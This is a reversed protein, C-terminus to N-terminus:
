LTPADRNALGQLGIALATEQLSLESLKWVNPVNLNYPPVSSTTSTAATAAAANSAEEAQPQSVSLHVAAHSMSPQYWFSAALAPQKISVTYQLYTTTGAMVITASHTASSLLDAAQSGGRQQTVMSCNQAMVLSTSSASGSVTHATCSGTDHNTDYEQLWLCVIM